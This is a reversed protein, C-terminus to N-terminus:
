SINEKAHSIKEDIATMKLRLEDAQKLIAALSDALEDRALEHRRIAEIKHPLKIIEQARQANTTM